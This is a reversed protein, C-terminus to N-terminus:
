RKAEQNASHCCGHMACAGCNGGCASKGQRRDARLRHVIGIVMAILGLSILLTGANESLWQM